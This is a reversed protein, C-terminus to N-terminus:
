QSANVRLQWSAHTYEMFEIANGDPDSTWAQLSQDMGTRIEGLTLGRSELTAKLDKLATVEFCFHAIRNGPTLPSNDGGWQKRMLVRDFIEIFTTDGAALYYGFVEDDKNRFVFQVSLGIRDVYFSKMVDLQDTVLCLHALKRIM